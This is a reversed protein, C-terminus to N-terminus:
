IEFVCRVSMPGQGQGSNIIPMGSTRTPPALRQLLALPSAQGSASRTTRWAEGVGKGSGLLPGGACHPSDSELDCRTDPALLSRIVHVGFLNTAKTLRVDARAASKRLDAAISSHVLHTSANRAERVAKATAEATPLADTWPCGPLESEGGALRARYRSGATANLASESRVHACCFVKRHSILNVLKPPLPALFAPEGFLLHWAHEMAHCHTPPWRPQIGRTPWDPPMARRSLPESSNRRVYADVLRLDDRSRTLAAERTLRFNACCPTSVCAPIPLRLSLLLSRLSPPLEYTTRAGIPAGGIVPAGGIASHLTGDPSPAFCRLVAANPHLLNVFGRTSGLATALMKELGAPPSEHMFLMQAPLAHWYKLLWFIYGTCERGGRPGAETESARMHHVSIPLTSAVSRITTEDHSTLERKQVIHISSNAPAGVMSRAVAHLWWLPNHSARVFIFAVSRNTGRLAAAATETDWSYGAPETPPQGQAEQDKMARRRRPRACCVLFVRTVENM